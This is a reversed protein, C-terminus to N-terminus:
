GIRTNIWVCNFCWNLVIFVAGMEVSFFLSSGFLAFRWGSIQFICGNGMMLGAFLFNRRKENKLMLWVSWLIFPICTIEVLNRVSLFPMMWLLALIWGVTVANKQNSIKETIKISFYIILISFLGHLLRNILMLIKPDAVGLFKMIAFYFYNLGVYTFSHGEPKGTSEPSWPLWHNYDYGDAWSSAAEVILFHDDHM